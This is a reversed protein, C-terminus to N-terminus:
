INPPIVLDPLVGTLIKDTHNLFHRSCNQSPLLNLQMLIASDEQREEVESTPLNETQTSETDSHSHSEIEVAYLDSEISILPMSFSTTGLLLLLFTAAFKGMTLHFYNHM